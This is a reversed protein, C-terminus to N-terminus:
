ENIKVTNDIRMTILCIGFNNGVITNLGVVVLCNYCAVQEAAVVVVAAVVEWDFPRHTCNDVAVRAVVVSLKDWGAAAIAAAADLNCGIGALIRRGVVVM